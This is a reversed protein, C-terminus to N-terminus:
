GWLMYTGSDTRRLFGAQVLETLIRECVDVDVHFLRSAQPLTVAMCAMERFEDRIRRLVEDRSPHDRRDHPDRRGGEMSATQLMSNTPAFAEATVNVEM